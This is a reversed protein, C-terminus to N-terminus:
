IKKVSYGDYLEEDEPNHYKFFSQHVYVNRFPNWVKDEYEVERTDAWEEAEKKTDWTELTYPVEEGGYEDNNFIVQWEEGHGVERLDGMLDKIEQDEYERLYKM